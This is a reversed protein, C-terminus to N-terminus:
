FLISMCIMFNEQFVIIVSTVQELDDVTSLSKLDSKLIIHLERGLLQIVCESHKYKV